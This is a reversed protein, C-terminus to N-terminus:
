KKLLTALIPEKAFFKVEKMIGGKEPHEPPLRPVIPGKKPCMPPVDNKKCVPAENGGEQELV